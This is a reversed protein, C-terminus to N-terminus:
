TEYKSGKLTLPLGAISLIVRDCHTAMKQHLLGAEDCYRRTLEGLPVIGLGTENSVFVIDNNLESVTQVLKRIQAELFAPDDRMLLNTLWLTLCDVLVCKAVTSHQLLADALFFEEEVTLWNDPRQDQHLKIRESMEEDYSKATAIYVVPKGTSAALQEAMKSKGSRVGGLVLQKM